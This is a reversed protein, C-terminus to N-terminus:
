DKEEGGDGNAAPVTTKSEVIQKGDGNAAPVQSILDKEDVKRLHRIFINGLPNGNDDFKVCYFIVGIHGRWKKNPRRYRGNSVINEKIQNIIKGVYTHKRLMHEPNKHNTYNTRALQKAREQSPLKMALIKKFKEDAALPTGDSFTILGMQYTNTKERELSSLLEELAKELADYGASNKDKKDQFAFGNPCAIVLHDPVPKSLPASQKIPPMSYGTARNIKERLSSGGVYKRTKNKRKIKKRNTKRQTKRLVRRKRRIKRTAM